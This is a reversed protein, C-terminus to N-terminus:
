FFLLAYDILLDFDLLLLPLLLDGFLFVLFLDLVIEVGHLSRHSVFLVFLEKSELFFNTVDQFFLLLDEGSVHSCDLFVGLQQGLLALQNGFYLSDPKHVVIHIRIDLLKLIDHLLFHLHVGEERFLDVIELLVELLFVFDSM